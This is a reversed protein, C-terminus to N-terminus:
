QLASTLRALDDLWRHGSSRQMWEESTLERSLGRYEDEVRRMRDTFSRSCVLMTLEFDLQFSRIDMNSSGVVTVLDDVTMHKAHLVTPAPYLHITV